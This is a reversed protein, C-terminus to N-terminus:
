LLLPSTLKWRSYAIVPENDRVRPENGQKNPVSCVHLTTATAACSFPIDRLSITSQSLSPGTVYLADTYLISSYLSGHTSGTSGHTTFRMRHTTFRMRLVWLTYRMLTYPALNFLVMCLVMCLLGCGVRLLVCGYLEYCLINVTYSILILLVMRTFRM